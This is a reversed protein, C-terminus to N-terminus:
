TLDIIPVASSRPSAEDELGHKELRYRFSRFSIGLIQAAKTRVGETRELAAIIM